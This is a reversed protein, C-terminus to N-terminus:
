ESLGVYVMASMNVNASYLPNHNIIDFQVPMSGGVPYPIEITHSSGAMLTFSVYTNQLASNREMQPLTDGYPIANTNWSMAPWLPEMLPYKFRIQLVTHRAWSRPRVYEALDELARDTDQGQLEDQMGEIDVANGVAGGATEWDGLRDALQTNVPMDIADIDERSIQPPQQRRNGGHGRINGNPATRVTQTRAPMRTPTPGSPARTGLEEAIMAGVHTSFTITIPGSYMNNTHTRISQHVRRFQNPAIVDSIDVVGLARRRAPPLVGRETPLPQVERPTSNAMRPRRIDAAPLNTVYPHDGTDDPIGLAPQNGILGDEDNM